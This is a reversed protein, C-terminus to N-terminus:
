RRVVCGMNLRKLAQSDPFPVAQHQLHLARWGGAMSSDDASAHTGGHAQRACRGAQLGGVPQLGTRQESATAAAAHPTDLQDGPSLTESCSLQGLPSGPKVSAGQMSIVTLVGACHLLCVIPCLSGPGDSSQRDHVSGYLSSLGNLVSGRQSGRCPSGPMCLVEHSASSDAILEQLSQEPDVHQLRRLLLPLPPLAAEEAALDAAPACALALHKTPREPGGAGPGKNLCSV